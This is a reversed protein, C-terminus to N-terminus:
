IREEFVVARKTYADGHATKIKAWNSHKLLERFQNETYFFVSRGNIVTKELEMNLEIRAIKQNNNTIGSMSHVDAITYRDKNVVIM